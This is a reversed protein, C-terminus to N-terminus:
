NVLANVNNFFSCVEVSVFLFCVYSFCERTHM